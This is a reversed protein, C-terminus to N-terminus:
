VWLFEAHREIAYRYRVGHEHHTAFLIPVDDSSRVLIRGLAISWQAVQM